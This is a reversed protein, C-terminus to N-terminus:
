KRHRAQSMRRLSGDKKFVKTAFKDGALVDLAIWQRAKIVDEISVKHGGHSHEFATALEGDQLAFIHVTGPGGYGDAPAGFGREWKIALNQTLFKKLRGAKSKALRCWKRRLLNLLAAALDPEKAFYSYYRALVWDRTPECPELHFGPHSPNGAMAMIGDFWEMNIEAPARWNLIFELADKRFLVGSGLSTLALKHQM